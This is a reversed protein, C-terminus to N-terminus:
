SSAWRQRRSRGAGGRRDGRRSGLWRPRRALRRRPDASPGSGTPCSSAAPRAPRAAAARLPRRQPVGLELAARPDPVHAALHPDRAAPGVVHGLEHLLLQGRTTGSASGPAFAPNDAANLVVFGRGIAAKPPADLPWTWTKYAYGGTGAAYATGRPRAAHHAHHAPRGM